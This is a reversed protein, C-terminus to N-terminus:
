IHILSLIRSHGSQIVAKQIAEIGDQIGIMTVDTRPVMCDRIKVQQFALWKDAIHASIQINNPHGKPLSNNLFIHLDSLSFVPAKDEYRHHLIHTIIVKAIYTIIKVLPYLLCTVLAVPLMLISLTRPSCKLFMSKPLFEVVILVVLTSIITQFFLLLISHHAFVPLYPKLLPDLIEAVHTTGIVLAITNGVLLTSIFDSPHNLFYSLIRGFISNQNKELEMSLKDAVLFATEVGSFFAASLLAGIITMSVDLIM